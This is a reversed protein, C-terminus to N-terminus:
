LGETRRGPESMHHCAAFHEEGVPVMPPKEEGCREVARPCRSQFRCGKPPSLYSPLRGAIGAMIGQGTLKPISEMLGLTYPHRPNQFIAKTPATEVISGAYMIYVRDTMERAVGLSHTILILATNNEVVLHRILKLVQDQITVDLNTTPEDAIMLQSSTALAMAICVRQRMGGSLQFPYNKLIREPDPMSCDSLAKVCRRYIEKKDNGAAVGSYRIVDGIQRGITFVPNLSSTPDQFIMSLKKHRLQNLAREQMTLINESEFLIKGDEVTAQRPLIGMVSKVTTTKGCGSEGVLGIREGPYVYLDIGNIVHATGNYIKYNLKLGQIQLLPTRAEM